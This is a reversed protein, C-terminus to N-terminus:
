LPWRENELWPIFCRPRASQYKFLKELLRAIYSSKKLKKLLVRSCPPLTASDLKRVKDVLSDNSPNYKTLFLELRLENVSQFRKKGYMVCVFGKVVQTYEETIADWDDPILNVLKLYNMFFRIHRLHWPRGWDCFKQLKMFQKERTKKPMKWIFFFCM